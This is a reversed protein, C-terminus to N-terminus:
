MSSILRRRTYALLSFPSREEHLSFFPDLMRPRRYRIQGYAFLSPPFFLSASVTGASRALQSLRAHKKRTRNIGPDPYTYERPPESRESSARPSPHHHIRDRRPRGALRVPGGPPVAASRQSARSAARSYERLTTLTAPPLAGRAVRWACQRRREVLGALKRCDEAALRLKAGHLQMDRARPKEEKEDSFDCVRKERRNQGVTVNGVALFGAEVARCSRCSARKRGDQSSPM